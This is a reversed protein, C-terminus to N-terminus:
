QALDYQFSRDGSRSTQKRIKSYFSIELRMSEGPPLPAPLSAELITDDIKFATVAHSNHQGDMLIKFSEIEISGNDEPSIIVPKHFERGEVAYISNNDKYANPYLHIYVKDLIEPSHNVYTIIQEGFIAHQAPLLTIDMQYNVTQQWYDEGALLNAAILFLFICLSKRYPM